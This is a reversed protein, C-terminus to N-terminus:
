PGPVQAEVAPSLTSENGSQDVAGVRYFYAKGPQVSMDRFTPARLLESNLKQGPTGGEDSRYVNYGALDTESNITWTLETYTPAGNTAAVSVAEVGQPAAPPFIDKASLVAPASDASEVTETGFQMVQRVEYLYTHGFQFSTDRYETGMAQALLQPPALLKAQSPNSVAAEAATPDV